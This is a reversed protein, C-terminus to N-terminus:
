HTEHNEHQICCVPNEKQREPHTRTNPSSERIEVVTEVGMKLREFEKQMAEMKEQQIKLHGLLVPSCSWCQNLTRRKQFDNSKESNREGEKLQDDDESRDVEDQSRRTALEFVKNLLDGQEVQLAGSLVQFADNLRENLSSFEDGHSGSKLIREVWNALTYKRLLERASELTLSLEKLATAVEASTQGAGRKQVSRLLEELAKVRECVRCCRKKNAKVTEVLQYIQSAVSLIPEIFDM